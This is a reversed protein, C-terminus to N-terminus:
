SRLLESVEFALELSQRANLRPDCMTEYRRELHDDLVEDAGGLCETVNEGTLELHVGGPRVGADKCAAFFGHLEGM